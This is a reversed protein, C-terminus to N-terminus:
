AHDEAIMNKGPSPCNGMSSPACWIRAGWREQLGIADQCVEEDEGACNISCTTPPASPRRLRCRKAGFCGAPVRRLWDRTRDQEGARRCGLRVALVAASRHSPLPQPQPPATASPCCLLFFLLLDFRDIENDRVQRVPYSFFSARCSRAADTFTQTAAFPRTVKCRGVPPPGLCNRDRRVCVTARAAPSARLIKKLASKLYYILVQSFIAENLAVQM